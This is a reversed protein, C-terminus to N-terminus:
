LVVEDGDMGIMVAYTKIDFRAGATALMETATMQGWHACAHLPTWGDRDRGNM